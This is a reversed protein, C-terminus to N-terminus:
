ISGAVDRISFEDINIKQGTEDYIKKKVDDALRAETGIINGNNKVGIIIYGGGENGIAVCYGLLCRRNKFEKQGDFPISDKWEKLEVREDEHHAILRELEESTM